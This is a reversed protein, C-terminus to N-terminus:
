LYRMLEYLQWFLFAIAFAMLVMFVLDVLKM